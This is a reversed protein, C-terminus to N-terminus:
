AKECKRESEDFDCPQKPEFYYGEEIKGRLVHQLNSLAKITEDRGDDIDNSKVSHTCLTFHMENRKM